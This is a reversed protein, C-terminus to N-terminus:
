KVGVDARSVDASGAADGMAENLVGASERHRCDYQGFKVGPGIHEIYGVTNEHSDIFQPLVYSQYIKSSVQASSNPLNLPPSFRRPV